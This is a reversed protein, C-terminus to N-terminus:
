AREVSNQEGPGAGHAQSRSRCLSGTPPEGAADEHAQLRGSRMEYVSSVHPALEPNHTVIVVTTSKETQLERLLNMVANGTEEDLSGTPEDALVVSPEKVLARAIAVRQQQGGSLRAPFKDEHAGLGVRALYERAKTADGRRLPRMAELGSLVNELVTLTPILNHFQFVFGVKEARFRTLQTFSMRHLPLGAVEVEGQDVTDLAGMVNLLTTKGSGSMGRIVVLDGRPVSLDVNQLVATQADGIVYHKSIRSLRIIPDSM